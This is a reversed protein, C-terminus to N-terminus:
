LACNVQSMVWAACPSDVISRHMMGPSMVDGVNPSPMDSDAVAVVKSDSIKLLMLALHDGILM